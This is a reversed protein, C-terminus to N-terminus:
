ASLQSAIYRVEAAMILSGIRKRVTEVSRSDDLRLRQMVRLAVLIVGSDLLFQEYAPPDLALASCVSVSFIEAFAGAHPADGASAAMYFPRTLVWMGPTAEASGTHARRFVLTYESIGFAVHAWVEGM